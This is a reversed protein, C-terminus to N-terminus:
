TQSADSDRDVDEPASAMWEEIWRRATKCFKVNAHLTEDMAAHNLNITLSVWSARPMGETSARRGLMEFCEEEHDNLIKLLIPAHRPSSSAIRAHLEDRIAQKPCPRQMWDELAREARPSASYAAPSGPMRSVFGERELRRLLHSVASHTIGWAPLRRMLMSALRYAGVPERQRLLEGLLPGRLASSRGWGDSTAQEAQSDMDEIRDIGLVARYLFRGSSAIPFQVLSSKRAGPSNVRAYNDRAEPGEATSSQKSTARSESVSGGAHAVALADPEFFPFPFDPAV